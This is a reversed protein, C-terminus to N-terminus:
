PEPDYEISMHIPVSDVLDALIEFADDGNRIRAIIDNTISNTMVPCNDGYGKCNVIRGSLFEYQKCFSNNKRLIHILQGFMKECLTEHKPDFEISIPHNPFSGDYVYFCIHLNRVGYCM